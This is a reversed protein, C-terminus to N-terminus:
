RVGDFKASSTISKQRQFSLLNYSLFKVVAEDLEGYSAHSGDQEIPKCNDLDRVCEVLLEAGELSLKDHLEPMMVNNDIQVKRTALIEGVDFKKPKIRM